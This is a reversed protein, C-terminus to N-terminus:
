GVPAPNESEYDGVHKKVTRRDLGTRRAVEEYTGLRRYLLACYRGILDRAEIAGARVDRALTEAPDAAATMRDGAYHRTLLIRRSAQELERVNGPWGYDAPLDHALISLISRALEPSGQGTLRAVTLDVLRSLESPDERIRRRLPPVVIVDSCLRYFFDDRFRGGQRLDQISRNTAAIVRGSFRKRAHSGVPTFTRGELVKLLKIQIPVSVDGIEDLFLAGHPSCREFLGKYDDVAGTFAGKRHGFLESEILSEPYQSLNITIFSETFSEAFRKKRPDFPIFGSRGIAAASAGKGTGTEGLILTSFDEMRNWLHQEYTRVDHTFVSNWLALRLDKMCPSDGVLSRVIFYYARRLQYFLAFYRACDEETFGRSRLQLFVADAFPVPAPAEGLRLQAQILEDFDDVCAHSIQFLFAHEVLTRDKGTFAQITSQGRAELRQLRENLLPVISNLRHADSDQEPGALSYIEAYEDSFPNTFIARAVLSLFHRDGAELKARTKRM